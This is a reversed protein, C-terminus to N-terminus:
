KFVGEVALKRYFDRNPHLIRLMGDPRSTHNYVTFNIYKFRYGKAYAKAWFNWDEYHPGPRVMYGGVGEWVTKRFLSSCILPNDQLFKEKSLGTSITPVWVGGDTCNGCVIDTDNSADLLAKLANPYFWDDADLPIIWEGKAAAIGTNRATSLGMNKPHRLLKIGAHGMMGLVDKDMPMSSADDVVIIEKDVDQSLCSPLARTLFSSDNFTCVIISIM